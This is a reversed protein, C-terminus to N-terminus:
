LGLDEGFVKDMREGLKAVYRRDGTVRYLANWHSPTTCLAELAEIPEKRLFHNLQLLKPQNQWGDPDDGCHAANEILMPLYMAQRQEATMAKYIAEREKPPQKWDLGESYPSLNLVGKMLIDIRSIGAKEMDDILNSMLQLQDAEMSKIQRTNSGFYTLYTDQHTKLTYLYDPFARLQHDIAGLVEHEVGQLPQLVVPKNPNILQEHQYFASYQNRIRRDMEDFPIEGAPKGLDARIGSLPNYPFRALAKYASDPLEVRILYLAHANDDAVAKIALDDGSVSYLKCFMKLDLDGKRTLQDVVDVDLGASLDKILSSVTGLPVNDNTIYPALPGIDKLLALAVTTNLFNDKLAFEGQAEKAGPYQTILARFAEKLDEPAVQQSVWKFYAMAENQLKGTRLTEKNFIVQEGPRAYSPLWKIENM